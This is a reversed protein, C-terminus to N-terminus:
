APDCIGYRPHIFTWFHGSARDSTPAARKSVPMANLNFWRMPASNSDFTPNAANTKPSTQSAEFTTRLQNPAIKIGVRNIADAKGTGV